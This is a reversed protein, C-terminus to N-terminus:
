GHEESSALLRKIRRVLAAAEAEAALFRRLADGPRDGPKGGDLAAAAARERARRLAAHLDRLETASDDPPPSSVPM